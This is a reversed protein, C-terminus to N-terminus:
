PWIEHWDDYFQKGGFDFVGILSDKTRPKIGVILTYRGHRKTNAELDPDRVNGLAGRDYRGFAFQISTPGAPDNRKDYLYSILFALEMKSLSVAQTNTDGWTRGMNDKFSKMYAKGYSKEVPMPIGKNEYEKDLKKIRISISDEYKKVLDNIWACKDQMAELDTNPIVSASIKSSATGDSQGCSGFHLSIILLVSFGLLGNYVGKFNKKM